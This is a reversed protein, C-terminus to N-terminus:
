QGIPNSLLFNNLHDRNILQAATATSCAEESVVSTRASRNGGAAPSSAVAAAAVAMACVCAGLRLRNADTFASVQRAIVQSTLRANPNDPIGPWHQHGHLPLREHAVRLPL